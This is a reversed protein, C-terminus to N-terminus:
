QPRIPTQGIRGRSSALRRSKPLFEIRMRTRLTTDLRVRRGNLTVQGIEEEWINLTELLDRIRVGGADPVTISMEDRGVASTKQPTGHVAITIRV